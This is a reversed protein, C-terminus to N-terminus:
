AMWRSATTCTCASSSESSTRTSAAQPWPGEGWGEGRTRPSPPIRAAPLHPAAFVSGRIISHDCSNEPAGYHDIQYGDVARTSPDPAIDLRLIVPDLKRGRAMVLDAARDVLDPCKRQRCDHESGFIEDHRGAALLHSPYPLNEVAAHAERDDVAQGDGLHISALRRRDVPEQRAHDRARDRLLEVASQDVIHEVGPLLRKGSRAHPRVLGVDLDAKVVVVGIVVGRGVIDAQEAQAPRHAAAVATDEAKM